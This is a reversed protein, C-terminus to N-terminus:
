KVLGSKKFLFVMLTLITIVMSGSTAIALGAHFDVSEPVAGHARVWFGCLLLSALLLGSTSSLLIATIKMREEM